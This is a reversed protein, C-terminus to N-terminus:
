VMCARAWGIISCQFPDRHLMTVLGFIPPAPTCLLRFPIVAKEAFSIQATPHRSNGLRGLLVSISCQFPVRHLITALGFGPGASLGDCSLAIVTLEALSTQATPDASETVSSVSISCQFPMRHLITELGFGALAPLRKKPTVAM